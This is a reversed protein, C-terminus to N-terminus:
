HRRFGWRPRAPGRCEVPTRIVGELADYTEVSCTRRAVIGYCLHDCGYDPRNPCFERAIGTCAYDERYAAEGDGIPGGRLGGVVREKPYLVLAAAMLTVGAIVLATTSTRHRM